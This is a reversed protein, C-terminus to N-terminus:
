GAKGRGRLMELIEHSYKMAVKKRGTADDMPFDTYISYSPDAEKKSKISDWFVKKEEPDTIAKGLRVIWPWESGFIVAWRNEVEGM